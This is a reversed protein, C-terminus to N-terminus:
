GDQKLRDIADGVLVTCYRCLRGSKRDVDATNRCYHMLCTPDPCHRLSFTHGLEHITEKALRDLFSKRSNHPRVDQKLRYTSVICAAGGLQAEGYVYTLIPIFLDVRTVAAVKHFKPPLREALRDLIRTSHYQDRLPDFAFNLDEILSRVECAFGFAREIEASLRGLLDEKFGGIPAIIIGAM